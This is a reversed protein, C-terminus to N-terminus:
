PNRPGEYGLSKLAEGAAAQEAEKKSRGWGRALAMGDGKVVVEFEKAHDPGRESIVEYSLSKFLGSQAVHQLATKNDGLDRSAAARRLRGGIHRLVFERAYELGRCLYIAGVVAEFTDALLSPRSQGGSRLEGRGLLVFEGLELERAVAALVPERVAAARLRTLEGESMAPYKDYLYHSVVLELVADGLFELRQNTELGLESNEYVFSAHSIATLLYRACGEDVGLRRALERARTIGEQWVM